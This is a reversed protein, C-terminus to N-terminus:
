AKPATAPLDPRIAVLVRKTLPKLNFPTTAANESRRAIAHGRFAIVTVVIAVGLLFVGAKHAPTKTKRSGLCRQRQPPILLLAHTGIANTHDRGAHAWYRTNTGAREVEARSGNRFHRMHAQQPRLPPSSIAWKLDSDDTAGTRAKARCGLLLEPSAHNAGMPVTVGLVNLASILSTDKTAYRWRCVTTEDERQVRALSWVTAMGLNYSGGLWTLNGGVSSQVAAATGANGTAATVRTISRRM